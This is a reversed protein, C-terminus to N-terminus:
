IDLANQNGVRYVNIIKSPNGNFYIKAGLDQFGDKVNAVDGIKLRTGDSKTILSIKSYDSGSLAQGETRILIEGRTTEIKGGPLDISSRKVANVVDSFSINYKRLQKDSLEISIEKSIIGDIGTLTVDDLLIIEDQLSQALNTLSYEDIDGSVAVSIVKSEISFQNVIPNEAEEPLSTM